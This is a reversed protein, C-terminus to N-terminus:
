PQVGLLTGTPTITIVRNVLKLPTRKSVHVWARDRGNPYEHILQGIGLEDIVPALVKCLEYPTGFSPAVWDVAEMRTHDSKASSGVAANLEACRYASNVSVPIDRKRIASLYERIREMMEATELADRLLMAPVKNVIGLKDATSSREFEALSFHASLQTM